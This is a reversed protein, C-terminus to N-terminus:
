SCVMWSCACWLGSLNGWPWGQLSRFVVLVKLGQWWSWVVEPGPIGFCVAEEAPVLYVSAFICATWDLRRVWHTQQVLVATKLGVLVGVTMKTVLTQRVLKMLGVFSPPEWSCVADAGVELLDFFGLDALPICGGACCAVMEWSSNMGAGRVSALQSWITANLAACQFFISSSNVREPCWSM